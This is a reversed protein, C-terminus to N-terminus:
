GKVTSYWIAMDSRIPVMTARYGGSDVNTRCNENTISDSSWVHSSITSVSRNNCQAVAYSIGKM